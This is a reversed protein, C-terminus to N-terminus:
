LGLGCCLCNELGENKQLERDRCCRNPIPETSLNECLLDIEENALPDCDLFHPWAFRDDETMTEQWHRLAALVTTLEKENM